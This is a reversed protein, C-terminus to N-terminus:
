LQPKHFKFLNEVLIFQHILTLILLISFYGMWVVTLDLWDVLEELDALLDSLPLDICSLRYWIHLPDRPFSVRTLQFFFATSNMIVIM